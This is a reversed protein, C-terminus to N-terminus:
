WIYWGGNIKVIKTIGGSSGGEGKITLIMEYCEEIENELGYEENMDQIETESLQHLDKIEYVINKGQSCLRECYSQERRVLCNLDYGRNEILRNNYFEGSIAVVLEGDMNKIADCKAQIVDEYTSNEFQKSAVLEAVKEKEKQEDYEQEVKIYVPQHSDTVTIDGLTGNKNSGWIYLLGNDTVVATTSEGLTVMAVNEMVKTPEERNETTGDGLEGNENDGWTYLSGDEKIVASHYEGICVLKVDDMIKTPEEYYRWSGDKGSPIDGWAYLKGDTTVAGMGWMTGEQNVSVSAVNQMIETPKELNADNAAGWVYLVGDKTIAASGGYSLEVDVVNELIKMPELSEEMGSVGLGGNSSEGWIYLNGDKTIAAKCGGCASVDVVDDMIKVPEENSDDTGNGINSGWSYLEGDNTVAIGTEESCVEAAMVNEMIKRKQCNKEGWIYLDDEVTIAMCCDRSTSFRVKEVEPTINEADSVTKSDEKGGNGCAFLSGALALIITMALLKKKM